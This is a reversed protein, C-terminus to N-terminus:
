PSPGPGKRRVVPPVPDAPKLELPQPPPVVKIRPGRPTRPKLRTIPAAALLARLQEETLPHARSKAPSGGEGRADALRFGQELFQLLTVLPQLRSEVETRILTRIQEDIPPRNMPQASM